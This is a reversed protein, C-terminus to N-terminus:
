ARPVVPLLSVLLLVAVIMLAAVAFDKIRDRWTSRVKLETDLPPLLSPPPGGARVHPRRVPCDRGQNCNGHDDCCNM